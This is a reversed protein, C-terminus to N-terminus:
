QAAKPLDWLLVRPEARTHRYFTLVCSTTKITATSATVALVKRGSMAVALGALDLRQDPAAQDCAWLDLDTWGLAELVAGWQDLLLGSDNVLEMWRLPPFGRPPVDPDLRALGEAWGRRVKGDFECIAAREERVADGDHLQSGSVGNIGSVSRPPPTQPIEPIEPLPDRLWKRM